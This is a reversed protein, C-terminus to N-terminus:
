KAEVLAIPRGQTVTEFQAYFLPKGRWLVLPKSIDRWEFAWM